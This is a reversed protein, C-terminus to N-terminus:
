PLDSSLAVPRAAALAPATGETAERLALRVTEVAVPKALVAVAGAARWAAAQGALTEPVLLVRRPRDPLDLAALLAVAEEATGDDAVDLLAVNVPTTAVFAPVGAPDCVAARGFEAELATRLYSRRIPNASVILLPVAPGAEVAAVAAPATLYPLHVTFTAGQGLTSAVSIDGGLARM